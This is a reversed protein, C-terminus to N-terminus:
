QQKNVQARERSKQDNKEKLNNFITEQQAKAAKLKDIQRLVKYDIGGGTKSFLEAALKCFGEASGHNLNPYQTNLQKLVTKYSQFDTISSSDYSSHIVRQTKLKNIDLIM